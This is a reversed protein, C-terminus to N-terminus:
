FDFNKKLAQAVQKVENTPEKKMVVVYEQKLQIGDKLLFMKQLKPSEFFKATDENLLFYGSGSEAMLAAENFNDVALFPSKIGLLDRHYHLEGQEENKQTVLLNPIKDLESIEITQQGSMFNGAQLVAELGFESVKIVQYNSYGHDRPDTLALDIKNEEFSDEIQDQYLPILRIELQLNKQLYRKLKELRATGFNKFYGLNITKM